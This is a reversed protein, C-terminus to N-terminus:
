PEGLYMTYTTGDDETWKLHATRPRSSEKGTKPDVFILRLRDDSDRVFKPTARGAPERTLLDNLRQLADAPLSRQGTEFESLYAKNVGSQNALYQLSWGNRERLRRAEAPTLIEAM